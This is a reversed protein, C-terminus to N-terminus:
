GPMVQRELYRDAADLEMAFHSASQYRDRPDQALATRLVTDASAPIRGFRGSSLANTRRHALAVEFPSAGTFPRRGTMMEYLTVGLAYVDCGPGPAGGILREPSMYHISGFVTGDHRSGIPTAIGFDALKVQGDNRVLLNAPKVDCHIAGRDHVHSLARALAGAIRIATSPPLHGRRLVKRLSEGEVWETVLYPRSAAPDADLVEVISPHHMSASIQIEGTFRRRVGDDAAARARLRKVTVPRGLSLDTARWVSTTTSTTLRSELRYRGSAARIPSRFAREAVVSARNEM